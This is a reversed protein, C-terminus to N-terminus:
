KKYDSLIKKYLEAYQSAVVEESWCNIAKERCQENLKYRKKNDICWSIGFALDKTDFPRALYGTKKHEIIDPFGTTNFAVIPIGCAMAETATQPLNEQRSPVVMVDLSNYISALLKDDNIHGLYTVPLGLEEDNKPKSQGFVVCNYSAPDELLNLADKLLDFGKNPDVGGGMAGFGIIKKSKNINYRDFIFSDNIPKFIDTDLPNPIVYVNWGRFLLSDKVCSALWNSPTVITFPINWKQKKLKWTYYNLNLGNSCRINKYGTRFESNPLDISLHETGCFAWMDHLTMIIPKDINSIQRISLTEANIWHLNIIDDDAKKIKKYIYSGFINLSHVNRNKTIQLKQIKQSIYNVGRSFLQQNSTGSIIDPYNSSKVKVLFNCNIDHKILAQYLRFSARAAGGRSDSHSVIKIKM